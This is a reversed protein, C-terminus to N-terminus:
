SGKGRRFADNLLSAITSARKSRRDFEEGTVIHFATRGESDFVKCGTARFPPKMGDFGSLPIINQASPKRSPPAVRKTPPTNDEPGVDPRIVLETSAPVTSEPTTSEPPTNPTETM